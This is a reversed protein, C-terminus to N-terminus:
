AKAEQSLSLAAAVAQAEQGEQFAHQAIESDPYTACREFAESLIVIPMEKGLIPAWGSLGSATKILVDSEGLLLSDLLAEQAKRLGQGGSQHLPEGNASRLTEAVTVVRFDALEEQVHQVFGAEDSAVFLAVPTGHLSAAAAELARRAARVADGYAIRPAEIIKDTGRYHLGVIFDGHFHAQKFAALQQALTDALAFHRRLVDRGDRISLPTGHELAIPLYEWRQVTLVKARGEPFPAKRQLLAHLWDGKGGDPAYNPSTCEIKLVRGHREAWWSSWLAWNLHAFLGVGPSHLRIILPDSGDLLKQAHARRLPDVVRHWQWRCHIKLAVLKKQIRELIKMTPPALPLGNPPELRM